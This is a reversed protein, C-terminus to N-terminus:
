VYDEVCAVGWPGWIYSNTYSTLIKVPDGAVQSTVLIWGQHPVLCLYDGVCPQLAMTMVKRGPSIPYHRQLPPHALQSLTDCIQSVNYTYHFETSRPFNLQSRSFIVFGQVHTIPVKLDQTCPHVM